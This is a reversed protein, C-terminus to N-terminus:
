LKSKQFSLKKLVNFDFSTNKLEPLSLIGTWESNIKSTIENQIKPQLKEKERQLYIEKAKEYSEIHKKNLGMTFEPINKNLEEEEIEEDEEEIKTDKEDDM